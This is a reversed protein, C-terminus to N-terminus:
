LMQCYSKKKSFWTIIVSLTKMISLPSFHVNGNRQWCSKVFETIIIPWWYHYHSHSHTKIINGIKKEPLNELLCLRYIMFPRSTQRLYRHCTILTLCAYWLVYTVVFWYCIVFQNVGNLSINICRKLCNQWNFILEMIVCNPSHFTSLFLYMYIPPISSM